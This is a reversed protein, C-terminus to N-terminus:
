LGWKNTLLNEVLAKEQATLPRNYLVVEAINGSLYYEGGSSDRNRGLNVGDLSAVDSFSVRNVDGNVKVGDVSIVSKDGDGDATDSTQYTYLFPNASTYAGLFEQGVAYLGTGNNRSLLGITSSLTQHAHESSPDGTDGASFFTHRATSNTKGVIFLTYESNAQLTALMSDVTMFDSVGDFTIVNKGNITDSGTIPQDSGVGQIAHNGSSSKDDWQSVLGALQTITSADFADLWLNVSDMYPMSVLGSYTFSAPLKKINRVDRNQHAAPIRVM